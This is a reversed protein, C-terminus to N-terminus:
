KGASECKSNMVYRVFESLGMGAAEATKKWKEKEVESLRVYVTTDKAM